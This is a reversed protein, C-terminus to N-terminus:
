KDLESNNIEKRGFLILAAVVLILGIIQKPSPQEHWILISALVPFAASLSIVTWSVSLQGENIHLFFTLTATFSLIGSSAALIVAMPHYIFHGKILLFALMTLFGGVYMWANVVQLNCNKHVAVKYSLAFVASFVVSLIILTIM